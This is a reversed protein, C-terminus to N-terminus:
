HPALQLYITVKGDGVSRGTFLLRLKKHLSFQKYGEHLYFTEQQVVRLEQWFPQNTVLEQFSFEGFAVSSM